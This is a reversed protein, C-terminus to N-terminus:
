CNLNMAWENMDPVNGAKIGQISATQVDNNIFRGDM